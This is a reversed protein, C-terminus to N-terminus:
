PNIWKLGPKKERLWKIQLSTVKQEFEQDHGSIKVTDGVAISHGTVEIVAVGIKDYFHTIKGILLDM